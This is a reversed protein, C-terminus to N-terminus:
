LEEIPTWRGDLRVQCEWDMLWLDHHRTEMGIEAGFARCARVDDTWQIARVTFFFAVALFLGLGVLLARNM